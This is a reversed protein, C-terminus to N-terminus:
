IKIIGNERFNPRSNKSIKDYLFSPIGIDALFIDGSNKQGQEVQFCKKPLALTLTTNAAVCPELCEGTTANMGSPLDYAIVHKGASNILNILVAFNDRPAGDLHYGLLADIIIDSKSVLNQAKDKDENFIFFPVNMKELLDLHHQSDEKIEGSVLIIDVDYGYNILHRAASLGDGGKNGKGCVILVKKDKTIKLEQFLFIIHWGALEMMQRIELGNSVVLNDLQEMEDATSYYM